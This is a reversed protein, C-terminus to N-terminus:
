YRSYYLVIIMILPVGSDYGGAKLLEDVEAKVEFTDELSVKM